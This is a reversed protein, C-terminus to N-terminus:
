RKRCRRQCRAAPLLEGFQHRSDIDTTWDDQHVVLREAEAFTQGSVHYRPSQNGSPGTHYLVQAGPLAEALHMATAQTEQAAAAVQVATERQALLRNLRFQALESFKGSPYRRLYDELPAPEKSDQVKEWLALEADFQKEKEAESIERLEKPPLFWFDDELSTSEWPIQQGNSRRRVGLRVRKFVDEIKAEPVQLEGEGLGAHHM